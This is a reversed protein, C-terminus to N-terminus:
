WVRTFSRAVSLFDSLSVRTSDLQIAYHKAGQEPVFLLFEGNTEGDRITCKPWTRCQVLVPVKVGNIVATAVQNAVGPQGCRSSDGPEYFGFHPTKTSRVNGWGAELCGYYRTLLVSDFELGLTRRPRYVPFGARKAIKQWTAQDNAAPAAAAALLASAAVGAVLAARAARRM